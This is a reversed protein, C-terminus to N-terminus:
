DNYNIAGTNPIGYVTVTQSTNTNSDNEVNGYADKVDSITVTFVEDGGTASNPIDLELSYSDGSVSIDDGSIADGTLGTTTYDFFWDSAGNVKSVTFLVKTTGSDGSACITSTAVDAVITADLTSEVTVTITQTTTCSLATGHAETETFTIEYDGPKKWLVSFSETNVIGGTIEFGDATGTTPSISWLLTNSANEAAVTYVKLEGINRTDDQAYSSIGVILFCFLGLVRIGHKKM